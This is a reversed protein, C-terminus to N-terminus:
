PNLRNMPEKYPEIEEAQQRLLTAQHIWMNHLELAMEPAQLKQEIDEIVYTLFDAVRQVVEPKNLYDADDVVLRMFYRIDEHGVHHQERLQTEVALIQRALEQTVEIANNM